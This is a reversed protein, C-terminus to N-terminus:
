HAIVAKRITHGAATEIDCLYIGAPIGSVNLVNGDARAVKTGNLSTLSISYILSGANAVLYEDAPNPYLTVSADGGNIDSIGGNDTLLIQDIKFTGTQSMQSATQSLKVGTIRANGETNAPITFYRWGLFDLNCVHTYMTSVDSTLEIYLQNNTLDGNVHICINDGPKIVADDDGVTRNWRIEGDSNDTFKYGFSTAAEGFLKDTKSLEVTATGANVSGDPDYTYKTADDMTEVTQAGTKETGADVVTFQIDVPAQITIGDRDAVDGSLQLNYTEGVTLDKLFPIRFFGYASGVKSSTINRKNFSVANGQSDTCTVQRLIPTVNPQKDFRFEIAANHYHVQEDNKPFSGLIDMFNRDTTFFSFSYPAEMAVGGGHKAGTGITVTYLTNTDYAKSPTFVLRHNLDEWTFTGETAPTISFAAQTAETDMDWNFQVTVPTNCLVPEDGDKWSPTVSEVAPPTNRVKSMQMNCYTVQDATVTIEDSTVTIHTDVSARVKYTGPKVEKFLYVGNPNKTETTYTQLVNGDTDLLEVTAGQITAKRDDGFMAFNGERPVRTDNLRGCVVGVDLGDVGFFEDICKRFHWAELWCFEKNMLRYTEPIYDHFSGESLMATVTNGRLVGLGANNWAPYFSFDGRVNQATSTWYTVQNELLYKNLIICLEKDLPKEPENDYGRFLMLPSNRRSVTGTANSHISFFVDAKSENCLRVITSLGLDDDETNTTRSMVVTYGKAELMDRLQLGKSLNSNSEWYGEPDGLTYPPIVVNRDNSEHGGHGPNIYIKIGAASKAQIGIATTAALMATMAVAIIKNPKM